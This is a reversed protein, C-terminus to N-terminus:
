LSKLRDEYIDNLTQSWTIRPAWGLASRFRSADGSAVPIDSPRLRDPDIMIEAQVGSLDMLDDLISRISRTQGACVNFITGPQLSMRHELVDLYADCVDRVDLFDRQADLNGVHIQPKQLGKAIRAIQSAFAPVVFDPSQGPGTHNFPRMRIARLGDRAMAGLALDAAAKTAAYTNAPSLAADENLPRNCQFTTGYAEATSAFLFTGDPVHKLMARALNLTGQLNVAWTDDPSQRAKGITSIAALHICCDPRGNAISDNVAQADRINPIGPLIHCDPFRVQLRSKLHQGVFGGLGTILLRM